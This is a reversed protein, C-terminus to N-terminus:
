TASQASSLPTKLIAASVNGYFFSPGWLPLGEKKKNFHHREGIGLITAMFLSM